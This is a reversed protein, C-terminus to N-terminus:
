LSEDPDQTRFRYFFAGDNLGIALKSGIRIWGNDSLLYYTTSPQLQPLKFDLSRKGQAPSTEDPDLAWVPTEPRNAAYLRVTKGKTDAFDIPGAFTMQLSTNLPVNRASVAPSISEIPMTMRLRHLGWGQWDERLDRRWSEPMGTEEKAFQYWRQSMEAVREPHEAALDTTETPDSKLNYLSWPSDNISIIKWDGDLLGKTTDNFGWFIENRIGYKPLEKDDLLPRISKGNLPKLKRDGDSTPYTLGAIEVLTPYLDCVHLRQHLISGPVISKEEPWRIILPSSVGGRYSSTKYYSFPTNMLRAWGTACAPRPGDPSWPKEKAYSQIAGHSYNGGNDSFFIVITNESVKRKRLHDLLRGINEDMRDVMGAYACFRRSELKQVSPPLEDWVCVEADPTNSQYRDDILGMERMREMRARRLADWGADFRGYYKQVNEKPAHLPGHPANFPVYTFFPQDADMAKDIQAIADDAFADSCYWGAAVPRPPQRDSQIAMTRNDSYTGKWGNIEGNLFGYFSDFGADLPNGPQHWKGSISTHYGAQQFLRAIPLSHAYQHSQSHEHGSLLSTRTVVCMPNVFFDTFRVGTKALRDISPTDMEGGFCGPDSYGMDDAVLLLINPRNAAPQAFSLTILLLTLGCAFLHTGIPFRHQTSHRRADLLSHCDPTQDVLSANM